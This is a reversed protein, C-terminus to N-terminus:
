PKYVTVIKTIIYHVSSDSLRISYITDQMEGSNPIYWDNTLSTSKICIQQGKSLPLDFGNTVTMLAGEKNKVIVQNGCSALLLVVIALMILQIRKM